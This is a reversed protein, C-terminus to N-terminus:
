PHRIDLGDLWSIVSIIRNLYKWNLQIIKQKENNLKYIKKSKSTMSLNINESKINNKMQIDIAVFILLQYTFFVFVTFFIAILVDISYHLRTTLIIFIIVFYHFIFWINIWNRGSHLLNTCLWVTALTTHGSFINDTCASIKGSAMLIILEVYKFPNQSYYPVCNNVANPVLLLFSNFKIYISLINMGTTVMFCCMRIIFLFSVMWGLRRFLVMGQYNMIHTKPFIITFIISLITNLHLVIDPLWKRHHSIDPLLLLIRDYLPETAYVKIDLINTHSNEICSVHNAFMLDNSM